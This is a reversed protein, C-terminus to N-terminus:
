TRRAAALAALFIRAGDEWRYNAAIHAAAAQGMRQRAEPDAVLRGIAEALAAPTAPVLSGTAGDQVTATPGGEAVAVM